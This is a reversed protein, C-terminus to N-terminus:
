FSALQRAIRQDHGYIDRRFHITGDAETWATLYLIHVPLPEELNVIRQQRQQTARTITAANWAANNLVQTALDIPHEVRVCGHSFARTQNLFLARSPTDHLYISHRNPFMFKIRGLANGRGSDQRIRLSTMDVKNWNVDNSDVEELGTETKAYVKYKRNTLYTPDEQIKPLLEKTAISDPVNWHPNFVLYSMSGSMTPTKDKLRGVVTRMALKSKGRDIYNLDYSPINVLIHRQGLDPLWRLRELNVEIQRVRDKASVNMADITGRGIVGDAFLGHRQQFVRVVEALAEDYLDADILPAQTAGEVPLATPAEGERERHENSFGRRVFRSLKTDQLDGSAWLRARVARIRDSRTGVDLKKTGPVTPWEAQAALERYTALAKTLGLYRWRQARFAELYRVPKGTAVAEHLLMVPDITSKPFYWDIGLGRPNLRGSILHQAYQLYADTVLLELAFAHADTDTLLTRITEVHYDAPNLAEQDVTELLALLRTIVKHSQGFQVWITKFERDRYLQAIITANHLKLQSAKSLQAELSAPEAAAQCVVVTVAIFSITLIKWMM